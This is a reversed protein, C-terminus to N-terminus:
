AVLNSGLTAGAMDTALVVTNGGTLDNIDINGDFLYTTNTGGVEYCNRTTLKNDPRFLNGSIVSKNIGNIGIGFKNNLFNNGTIQLGTGTDIFIGFSSDAPAAGLNAGNTANIQNNSIIMGYVPQYVYIGCKTNHNITNGDIIGHDSNGGGNIQVGIANFQISNNVISNNGGGCSIGIGSCSYVNCNSVVCYEGSLAIGANSAGTVNCFSIFNRVSGAHAIGQFMAGFQCHEITTNKVNTDAVIGIHTGGADSTFNINRLVSDRWVGTLRIGYITAGGTMAITAGHGDVIKGVLADLTQTATVTYTTASDLHLTKATTSAELADFAAQLDAYDAAYLGNDTVGSATSPGYGM